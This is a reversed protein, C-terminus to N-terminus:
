DNEVEPQEAPELQDVRYWAYRGQGFGVFYVQGKEVAPTRNTDLDYTYVKGILGAYEHSIDIVKVYSFERFPQRAIATTEDLKRQLLIIANKLRDIEATLDAKEKKWKDSDERYEKATINTDHESRIAEAFQIPDKNIDNATSELIMLGAHTIIQM